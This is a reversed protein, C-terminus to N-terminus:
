TPTVVRPPLGAGAAGWREWRDWGACRNVARATVPPHGRSTAEPPQGARGSGDSQGSPRTFNM